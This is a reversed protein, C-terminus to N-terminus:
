VWTSAHPQVRPDVSGVLYNAPALRLATSSVRNTWQWMRSPRNLCLGIVRGHAHGQALSGRVASTKVMGMLTPM